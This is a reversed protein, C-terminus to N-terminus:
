KFNFFFIYINKQHNELLQFSFFFHFSFFFINCAALQAVALKSNQTVICYVTDHCLLCPGVPSPGRYPWPEAVVRSLMLWLVTRLARSITSLARARGPQHLTDRYLQQIMVLPLDPWSHTVICDNTDHCSPPRAAPSHTVICDTTDHCASAQSNPQTALCAVVRDHLCQSVARLLAKPCANRCPAGFHAHM